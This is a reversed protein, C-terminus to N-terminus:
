VGRRPADRCSAPRLLVDFGRYGDSMWHHVGLYSFEVLPDSIAINHAGGFDTCTIRYVIVLYTARHPPVGVSTVRDGLSFIRPAPHMYGLLFLAHGAPVLASGVGNNLHVDNVTVADAGGNWLTFVREYRYPTAPSRWYDLVGGDATLKRTDHSWLGSKLVVASTNLPGFSLPQYTWTWVTWAVVVVLGVYCVTLVTIWAGPRPTAPAKASSRVTEHAQLVTV